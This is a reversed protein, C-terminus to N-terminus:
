SVPCFLNCSEAILQLTKVLLIYSQNNKKIKKLQWILGSSLMLRFSNKALVTKEKQFYLDLQNM